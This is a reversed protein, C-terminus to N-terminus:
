NAEKMFHRVNSDIISTIAVIFEEVYNQGKECGGINFTRKDTSEWFEEPSECDSDYLSTSKWDYLTVRAGEGTIFLYEGSTKCGDSKDPEGFTKILDAPAVNLFKNAGWTSVFEVEDERVRHFM